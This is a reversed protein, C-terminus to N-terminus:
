YIKKTELCVGVPLPSKVNESLVIYITVAEANSYCLNIRQGKTDGPTMQVDALIDQGMFSTGIRINIPEEITGTSDYFNVGVIATGAPLLQSESGGTYIDFNYNPSISPIHALIWILIDNWIWRVNKPTTESTAVQQTGPISETGVITSTKTLDIIRNSM